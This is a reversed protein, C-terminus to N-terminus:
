RDKQIPKQTKLKNLIEIAEVFIPPVKIGMLTANEILSILENVSFGVIVSYRIFSTGAVTELQYAVLVLALTMGKRCLGKWGARSELMGTESKPSAKFVGAVVLGSVYDVIMFIVLVNLVKDWGGLAQIGFGGIAGIVTLLFSKVSLFEEVKM